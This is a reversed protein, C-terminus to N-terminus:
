KGSADGVILAVEGGPLTFVDLFDGGVDAEDWAPQYLTALSLDPVADEAIQLLLPRQLVQTIRREREYAAHREAALLRAVDGREREADQHVLAFHGVSEQ